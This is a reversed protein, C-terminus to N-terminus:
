SLPIDGLNVDDQTSIGRIVKMREGKQIKLDFKGEEIGEFWFDGYSDTKANLSKKGGPRTLTIRAGVVVEKESPDYVTGAIFKKPVNRYYVRPKDRSAREPKIVEAKGILSGAESEEMFRIALTPCADVCRPEKWGSDLLHACGTCKQAINLGDNFYIVGYPCADVCSRCGTCKTPDIIVLGDDRRYIAGDKCSEMCPADRCHNCLAPLYAVKVKPVTGRVRENLKLWFQGTEPQPRAYPAWDNGVHEDKCAIQCNYCGNCVALDVVFVKL